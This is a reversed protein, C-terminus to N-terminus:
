ISTVQSVGVYVQVLLLGAMAPVQTKAGLLPRRFRSRSCSCSLPECDQRLLFSVAQRRLPCDIHVSRAESKEFQPEHPLLQPSTSPASVTAHM